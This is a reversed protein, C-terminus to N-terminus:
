EDPRHIVVDTTTDTDTYEAAPRDLYKWLVAAIPGCIALALLAAGALRGFTSPEAHRVNTVDGLIFDGMDEGEPLNGGQARLAIRNSAEISRQELDAHQHLNKIGVAAAAEELRERNRLARLTGQRLSGTM